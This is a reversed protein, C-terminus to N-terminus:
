ELFQDSPPTRLNITGEKELERAVAIVQQQAADVEKLKVPGLMALEEAMMEAGRASQTALFKQRLSENAGKLSLILVNREVSNMIAKLATSDLVELDRFVFMFRCIDEFLAPNKVQVAELVQTCTGPDLHNFLKAVVRAGGCAERSVEGLNRLKQNLVSVIHRIIEPSVQDLDAMRIAVAARTEEPLSSVLTAAQAADLHSLILAITQPHEDQIFKALQQPDAKQFSELNAADKGSMKSLRELLRGAAEPGYAKTLLESTYELGGRMYLHRSSRLCFEELSDRLLEPPVEKLKAIARTLKDAEDESVHKLIAASQQPGLAIMVIAARAVSNPSDVKASKAEKPM